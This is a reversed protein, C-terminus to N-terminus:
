SNNKQMIAVLSSNRVSYFTSVEDGLTKETYMQMQLCKSGYQSGDRIDDWSEVPQPSQLKAVADFDICSVHVIM